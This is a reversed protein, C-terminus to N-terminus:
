LIIKIILTSILLIWIEGDVLFGFYWWPFHESEPAYLTSLAITCAMPILLVSERNLSVLPIILIFAGSLLSSCIYKTAFTGLLVPVTQIRCVRDGKIDKSDSIITNTLIIIFFFLFLVGDLLTWNEYYAPVILVSSGFATAIFLNKMLFFRKLKFISYLIAIIFPIIAIAFSLFNRQSVLGLLLAYFIFSVVLLTIRIRFPFRIRDPLNIADEERDTIRNISYILLFAFFPLLVLQWSFPNKTLIITAYTIAAPCVAGFLTSEVFFNIARKLIAGIKIGASMRRGSLNDNEM